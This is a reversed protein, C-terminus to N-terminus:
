VFQSPKATERERRKRECLSVGREQNGVSHGSSDTWRDANM